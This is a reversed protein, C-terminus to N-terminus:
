MAWTETAQQSCHFDTGRLNQLSVVDLGTAHRHTHTHTWTRQYWTVAFIMDCMRDSETM